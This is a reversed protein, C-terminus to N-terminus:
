PFAFKSLPRLSKLLVELSLSPSEHILQEVAILQGLNDAVHDTIQTLTDECDRTQKAWRFTTPFCSACKLVYDNPEPNPIHFDNLYLNAPPVGERFPQREEPSRYILVGFKINRRDAREMLDHITHLLKPRPNVSPEAILLSYKFEKVTNICMNLLNTDYCELQLFDSDLGFRTTRSRLEHYTLIRASGNMNQKALNMFAKAGLMEGGDKLVLIRGSNAALHVQDRFNDLTHRPLVNLTNETSM